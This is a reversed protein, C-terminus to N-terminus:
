KRKSSLYVLVCLVVFLIIWFLPAQLTQRINDIAFAGTLAKGTFLPKVKAPGILLIAIIIVAIGLFVKEGAKGM